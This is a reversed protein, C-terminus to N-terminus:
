NARLRRRRMMRCGSLTKVPKAVASKSRVPDVAGEGPVGVVGVGVGAGMGLGLGLWGGGGRLTAGGAEITGGGGGTGTGTGAGTTETVEGGAEAGAWGRVVAGRTAEGREVFEALGDEVM